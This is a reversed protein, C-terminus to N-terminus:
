EALIQFYYSCKLNQWSQCLVIRKGIVIKQVVVAPEIMFIQFAFYLITRHRSRNGVRFTHTGPAATHTSPVSIISNAVFGDNGDWAAPLGGPIAPPFFKHTQPTDNDVQTAFALPRDDGYGNFSPSVLVTVDVSNNALTHFNVFDYESNISYRKPCFVHSM